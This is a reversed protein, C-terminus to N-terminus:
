HNDTGSLLTNRQRLTSLKNKMQFIFRKFIICTTQDLTRGHNLSVIQGYQNYEFTHYLIYKIELM